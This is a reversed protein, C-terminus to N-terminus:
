AAVAHGFGEALRKAAFQVASGLSPLRAADVQMLSCCVGIAARPQGHRDLVAAAVCRVSPRTAQDDVAYGRHRVTELDDRLAERAAPDHPYTEALFADLRAPAWHALIAKGTATTHLPLVDGPRAPAWRDRESRVQAAYRVQAGDPVALSATARAGAHLSQLVPRAHRRLDRAEDAGGAFAMARIGVLWQNTRTDFAVYRMSEMTTLLRHATSRPLGTRKAIDTLTLGEEHEALQDLLGLARVLSQVCGGRGDGDREAVDLHAM